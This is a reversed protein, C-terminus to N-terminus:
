PGDQTAVRAAFDVLAQSSPEPRGNNQREAATLVDLHEYGPLTIHPDGSQLGAKRLVGDGAMVTFRPQLRTPNPYVARSLAGSRDGSGLAMLDAVIRTPFWSETLNTPGEFTTRALQQADTVESSPTTYGAGLQAAGTGLADYNRWGSLAGTGRRPLVLQGRQVAVNLGPVLALEDALRNRILPAGEPFGLSARVLGLPSANDDLLQGFFGAFSFRLDDLSDDSGAWRAFSASGALHYFTRLEASHPIRAIWPSADEAPSTAALYGVAEVLSLTEPSVGLLEVHRSVTGARLARVATQGVVAGFGRTLGSLGPIARLFETSIGSALLTDFGFFGACQRYGADATTARNSDFDWGAFAEVLPGGLSHGGCVVHQERWAQDPLERTLVTRLDEVTQAVGIEALLRDSAKFGAFRRGAIAAGGYYYDLAQERDGTRELLDLGTLDEMCNARRDIAWVELDLGRRAGERVANRAVQDFAAAGELLGPMLVTVADAQMAQGPGAARRFREYGIRDCAPTAGPTGPPLPASLSVYSAAVDAQPSASVIPTEIRAPGDAAAAVGPAAAAPLAAVVLALWFSRM